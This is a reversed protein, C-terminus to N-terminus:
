VGFVREIGDEVVTAESWSTTGMANDAHVCLLYLEGEEPTYLRGQRFPLGLYAALNEAINSEGGCGEPVCAGIGYEEALVTDGGEVAVARGDEDIRYAVVARPVDDDLQMLRLGVLRRTRPAGASM